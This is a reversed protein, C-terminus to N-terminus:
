FYTSFPASPFSIIEAETLVCYVVKELKKVASKRSFILLEFYKARFIEYHVNSNNKNWSVPRVAAATWDVKCYLLRISNRGPIYILLWEAKFAEALIILQM